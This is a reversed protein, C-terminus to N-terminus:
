SYYAGIRVRLHEPTPYPRENLWACYGSPTSATPACEFPKAVADTIDQIRVIWESLYSAVAQGSLGMQLTRYPLRHLARDREPDWQIRVTSLRLERLWESPNRHVQPDFHSLCSHALAWEFGERTIDISLIREQGAKSGWDSRYMMWFFSPKIWTMRKTKFPGVFTGHRLAADAIAHSYAQYVRITKDDFVARIERYPVDASNANDGLKTTPLDSRSVSNSDVKDLDNHTAKPM